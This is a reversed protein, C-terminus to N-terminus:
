LNHSNRSRSSHITQKGEQSRDQKRTQTNWMKKKLKPSLLDAKKHNKNCQEVQYLVKTVVAHTQEPHKM